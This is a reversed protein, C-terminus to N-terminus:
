FFLIEKWVEHKDLMNVLIKRVKSLIRNKELLNIFPQQLYM